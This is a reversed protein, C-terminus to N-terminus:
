YFLLYFNSMKLKDIILFDIVINEKSKILQKIKM